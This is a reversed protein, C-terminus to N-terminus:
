PISRKLLHYSYNSLDENTYIAQCYEWRDQGLKNLLVILSKDGDCVSNGDFALYRLTGDRAKSVYVQLYEWKM